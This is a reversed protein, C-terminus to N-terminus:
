KAALITDVTAAAEDMAAQPEKEGRLVSLVAGSIADKPWGYPPGAFTRQLDAGKTGAPTIAALVEKCVGNTTPEGHHGVADLADPAGDRAKIVVKGWHPNDGVHFKPFLRILARGAATDVATRLDAAIVESGGGQFVRARGVVGRFLTRLRDEDMVKRTQMARM